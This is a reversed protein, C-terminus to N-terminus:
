HQEVNAEGEHGFAQRNAEKQKAISQGDKKDLVMQTIIKDAAAKRRQDMAEESDGDSM